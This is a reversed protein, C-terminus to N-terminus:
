SIVDIVTPGLGCRELQCGHSVEPYATGIFRRIVRPACDLSDLVISDLILQNRAGGKEGGPTNM